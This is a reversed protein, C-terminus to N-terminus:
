MFSVSFFICGRLSLKTAEKCTLALMELEVECWEVERWEVYNQRHSVSREHEPVRDYAKEDMNVPGVM